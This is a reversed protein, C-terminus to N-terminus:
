VWQETGTEHVMVVGSRNNVNPGSLQLLLSANVMVKTRVVGRRLANTARVATRYIKVYFFVMVFMPIWFSGCASYIIYGPESTLACVTFQSDGETVATTIVNDGTQTLPPVDTLSPTLLSEYISFDSTVSAVDNKLFLSDGQNHSKETEQFRQFVEKSNRVISRVASFESMARVTTIKNIVDDSDVISTVEDISPFHLLDAASTFSQQQYPTSFQHLDAAESKTIENGVSLNNSRDVIHLLGTEIVDDSVSSISRLNRSLSSANYVSNFTESWNWSKEFDFDGPLPASLSSSEDAPISDRWGLLPPLCIALALTWVVAVAVRARAPSMLTPYRFPRSIALYRDLSIAVLNLISATCLWVDIALWAQCWVSGFPWRNGLLEYASSSPLVLLGLLLDSTALSVIFVNTVTRLKRHTFVAAVVM